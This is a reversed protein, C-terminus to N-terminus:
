GSLDSAVRALLALGRRSWEDDAGALGCAPTVVLREAHQEVDFGLRGMFSTLRDRVAKEGMSELTPLVGPWLDTGAEFAEAWADGPSVVGVDFSIAEFGAGALLAVPVDAACCHVVPLAGADRIADVVRRLLADAEPPHVTRYKGFGSATPVQAGLVAPLMPEDVQVVIDAGPVRRRLGAVHEAVGIALSEALDRRAGHDSLVREGRPLEVTAALTLPGAVQQKLLGDNDHWKEEVLDLDQALLSRARRLDVGPADTLRWAAPQLDASLGDLMSLSRGIMGAQVGRAPLEPVFRLDHLERAVVGLGVELDTGPMSGVGTARM